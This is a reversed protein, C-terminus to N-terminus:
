FKMKVTEKLIVENCNPLNDLPAPTGYGTPRKGGEGESDVSEAVQTRPCLLHTNTRRNTRSDVRSDTRTNTRSETRSDTRSDTRIDTRSNTRSNIHMDMRSNVRSDTRSDTRTDTRRYTHKCINHRYTQGFPDFPFPESERQVRENM